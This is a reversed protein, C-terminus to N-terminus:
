WGVPEESPPLELKPVLPKEPATAIAVAVGTAISGLAIAVLGWVGGSATECEEQSLERIAPSQADM